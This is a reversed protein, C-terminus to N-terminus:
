IQNQACTVAIQVLKLTATAKNLRSSATLNDVGGGFLSTILSYKTMMIINDCNIFMTM